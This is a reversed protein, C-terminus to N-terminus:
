GHASATASYAAAIAATNAFVEHRTVRGNRVTFFQAISSDIQKGTAKVRAQYRGSEQENM